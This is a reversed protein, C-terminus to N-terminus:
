DLHRSLLYAEGASFAGLCMAGGWAGYRAALIAFGAFGLAVLTHLVGHQRAQEMDWYHFRLFESGACSVSEAAECM